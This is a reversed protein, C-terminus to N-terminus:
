SWSAGPTGQDNSTPWRRGSAVPREGEEQDAAGDATETEAHEAVPDAPHADHRQRDQGVRDERGQGEECPRDQLDIHKRNRTASPVPPSHATAAASTASVKGSRARGYAEAIKWADLTRPTVSAATVPMTRLSGSWHRQPNRTPVPM